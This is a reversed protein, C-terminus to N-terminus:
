DGARARSFNTRTPQANAEFPHKEASVTAVSLPKLTSYPPKPKLNESARPLEVARPEARRERQTWTASEGLHLRLEKDGLM